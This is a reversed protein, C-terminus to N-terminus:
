NNSNLPELVLRVGLIGGDYNPYDSSSYAAGRLIDYFGRFGRFSSSEGYEQVWNYQGQYNNLGPYNKNNYIWSNSSGLTLDGFWNYNALQVNYNRKDYNATDGDRLAQEAFNNNFTNSGFRYGQTIPLITRNWESNNNQSGYDWYSTNAVNGGYNTKGQLLRVIYKKGKITLITAKYDKNNYKNQYKEKNSKPLGNEGIVDWGYVVGADFLTNWSVGKRIPKKMVYFTRPKGDRLYKYDIFKLWIGGKDEEEKNKDYIEKYGDIPIEPKAGGISANLQSVLDEHKILNKGSVEGFFAMDDYRGLEVKGEEPEEGDDEIKRFKISGYEIGSDYPEIVLRVGCYFDRHDPNSRNSDSSGHYLLYDGRHGRACEYNIDGSYEQVWNNQGAPAISSNYKGNYVWDKDFSVGLTLDGFWNYDNTQIKYNDGDQKFLASEIYNENLSSFCWRYYKTIPLITRNWESNANQSNFSWNKTNTVDGGYNTKGQLLRVIYKKRNITIIKAQYDKNTGYSGINKYKEPNSKPLGTDPDIVDWGYVAGATHLTNWSVGKRIPKKMVYFTRPKGERTYKHDIFKLWIGGKDAKKDNSENKGDAKGDSGMEDVWKNYIEEHGDKDIIPAKGETIKLENTILNDYTILNIGEVEGVFEMGDYTKNHYKTTGGDFSVQGGEIQVKDKLISGEANVVESSLNKNPFNEEIVAASGAGKIIDMLPGFQTLLLAFTLILIIKKNKKM